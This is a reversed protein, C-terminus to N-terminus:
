DKFSASDGLDFHGTITVLGSGSSGLPSVEITAAQADSALLAFLAIAFCRVFMKADRLSRGFLNQADGLNQINSLPRHNELPASANAM